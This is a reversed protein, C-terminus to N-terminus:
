FFKMGKFNSLLSIVVCKFLFSHYFFASAFSLFNELWLFYFLNFMTNKIVSQLLFEYMCMQILKRKFHRGWVWKSTNWCCNIIIVHFGYTNSLLCILVSKGGFSIFLYFFFFCRWIRNVTFHLSKRMIKVSIFGVDLMLFITKLVCQVARVRYIYKQM